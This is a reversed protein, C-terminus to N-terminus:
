RAIARALTQEPQLPSPLVASQPQAQQRAGLTLEPNVADLQRLSEGVPTSTVTQTDIRAWRKDPSNVEGQVAFAYEGRESLIIHDIRQLGAQKAAVAASTALRDSSLDPARHLSAELRGVAAVSQSLLGHDSHGPQTADIRIPLDVVRPEPPVPAIAVKVFDFRSALAEDRPEANRCDAVKRCVRDSALAEVVGEPHQRDVKNWIRYLLMGEESRHVVNMGPASPEPKKQLFPTDSLANLYDMMLNGSRIALGNRHYGGGIDSHAGGVVVALFRGDATMGQDILSTSKFLGRREDEATIQFGSIVSPPLRRDHNRPEGTGVPDFLGVAQAIQGPPVLPPKTYEIITKGSEDITKKVGTPDQIGREHVLRAFSAAQEAGRSFGIDAVRIQANPDKQKWETSQIIFQQYMEELREDYSFGIAGDLARVLLNDQTGVGKVYGVRIDTNGDNRLADIQTKFNGVNTMHGPNNIADNGTGDFAAIFLRDHPSGAQALVPAHLQSLSQKAADFTALDHADAPYHSVGDEFLVDRGLKHKEKDM